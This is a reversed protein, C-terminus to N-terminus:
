GFYGSVIGTRYVRSNSQIRCDYYTIHVELEDQGDDEDLDSDNVNVQFLDAGLGSEGAVPSGPAITLRRIFDDDGDGGDDGYLAADFTGGCDIIQQASSQRMHVDIGVRITWWGYGQYELHLCANFNTDYNCALDTVSASSPPTTALFTGVGVALAAFGSLMRVLYKRHKTM